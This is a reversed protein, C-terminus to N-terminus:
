YQLLGRSGYPEFKGRVDILDGTAVLDMPNRVSIAVLDMLNRIMNGGFGRSRVSTAVLDM